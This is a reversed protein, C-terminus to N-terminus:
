KSRLSKAAEEICVGVFLLGWSISCIIWPADTNGVLVGPPSFIQAAIVVLAIAGIAFLVFSVFDKM